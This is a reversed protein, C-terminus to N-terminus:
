KALTQFLEVFQEVELLYVKEDAFDLKELRGQLNKKSFVKDKLFPAALEFANQLSKNKFRFLQKVLEIFAPEHSVKGFRKQCAFRVLASLGTPKPFFSSPDVTQVMEPISFYQAMVSIAGYDSFGPQALLKHVFEKQFVLVAKDFGTEFIKYIIESSIAYPPFCVVKTFTGNSLKADLFDECRLDLNPNSITERLLACLSEDKEFATVRAHKILERTLFGTGAGIELVRDKPSLDAERIISQLLEESVVFHQSLRKEPRFRYKMMLSQLENQLNM